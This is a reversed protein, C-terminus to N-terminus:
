LLDFDIVVADHVGVLLQAREYPGIAPAARQAGVNGMNLHDDANYGM